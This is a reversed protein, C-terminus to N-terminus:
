HKAAYETSGLIGEAVSEVTAKGNQLQTLWNDLGTADVTRNLFLNYYGNLVDTYSETSTLISGVTNVTGYVSLFNVWYSQESASPLRALIDLFLGQIFLQSTNHSSIFESSTMFLTEVGQENYTGNEMLNVWFNIESAAPTRHLYNQYYLVVQDQRHEVSRWIDTAVQQNSLGGNIQGVWFNLGATDATRSLLNSYLGQVFSTADLALRDELQECQLQARLSPRDSM